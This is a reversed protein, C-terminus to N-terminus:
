RKRGGGERAAAGMRGERLAATVSRVWELRTRQMAIAGVVMLDFYPGSFLGEERSRESLDLFEAIRGEIVELLKRRKALPLVTLFAIRARLPDPPVGVIEDGVPPGVWRALAARGEATVRYRRSKRSGTAHAQSRVLGAEELRVMLPYIAGASGSWHPSPSDTFQRRVQYPTCPQRSWVVGLVTGELETLPRARGM